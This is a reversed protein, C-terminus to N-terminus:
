QPRHLLKRTFLAAALTYIAAAMGLAIGGYPTLEFGVTYEHHLWFYAIAAMLVSLLILILLAAWLKTM